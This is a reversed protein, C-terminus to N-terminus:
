GDAFFRPAGSKCRGTGADLNFRSHPALVVGVRVGAITSCQVALWAGHFEEPTADRLRTWARRADADQRLPRVNGLETKPTEM